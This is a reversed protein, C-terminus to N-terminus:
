VQTNMSCKTSSRPLVKWAFNGRLLNNKQLKPSTHNLHSSSFYLHTYLTYVITAAYTGQSEVKREAEVLKSRLEELEQTQESLLSRLTKVEQNSFQGPDEGLNPEVETGGGDDNAHDISTASTTLEQVVRKRVILVIREIWETWVKWEFECHSWVWESPKSKQIAELQTTLKSVPQLLGLISSRTFGGSHQEGDDGMYEMCLGLFVRALPYQKSSQSIMEMAHPSSLVAHVVVPADTVWVCLFRLIWGALTTNQEPVIIEQLLADVLGHPKTLQLFISRSPEDTLFLSLASLSGALLLPSKGGVNELVTNLLKKVVTITAPTAVGDGGGEEETMMMPPALTHLLMESKVTQPLTRRIVYLSSARIRSRLEETSSSGGNGTCILYLLRDLGAHKQLIEFDDLYQASMQLAVQQIETSPIGCSWQSQPPPTLFAMEYVLSVIPSTKLIKQIKPFQALREIVKLVSSIVNEETETLRPVPPKKPTTPKAQQGGTQLLDDLDDAPSPPRIQATDVSPKRFAKAYRLDLLRALIQIVANSSTIVLEACAADHSLLKALLQLADVTVINAAAAMLSGQQSEDDINTDERSIFAAIIDAIDGFCWIKSIAPNEALRKMLLVTPHRLADDELLEGLRHLGNPTELFRRVTVKPAVQYFKQLLELAL